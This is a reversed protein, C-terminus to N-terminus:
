TEFSTENTNLLSFAKEYSPEETIEKVIEQYLIKKKEDLVFLSRALLGQLAGDIILIGYDKGFQQNRMTSLTLLHDIKEKECFRSQAFPLDASVILFLADPHNKAFQHIKQTMLSCVKTDLSPVTAILMKKEPFSLLTRDKLEQDVLLFNPAVNGLKLSTDFTHIPSGKFLLTAM